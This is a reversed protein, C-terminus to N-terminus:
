SEDDGEQVATKPAKLEMDSLHLLLCYRTGNIRGELFGRYNKGGRQLILPKEGREGAGLLMLSDREALEKAIEYLFEYTLGSVHVIQKKSSFVFRRVAVSKDIYRGTWVLPIDTNVNQAEITRPKREKETGDPNLVVEVENIHFVVREKSVYVRTTESLFKGFMEIDLDEDTKSLVDFLADLNQHKELLRDLSHGLDCKLLRLTATERGDLDLYRITTKAKVSELGVKADLRRNNRLNIPM